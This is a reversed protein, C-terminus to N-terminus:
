FRLIKKFLGGKKYPGIVAFNLKKDKFITRAVGRVEDARISKIRDIIKGPPLLSRTLIEQEGYYGALADSTELGLIFNGILHDKSRQLERPPVLEGGLRHMEHLIAKIVAEIKGHDVGASAALYGHDLYFDPSSGIYYAAGMEERVKKFLRSSMGGGLVDSLVQLAYRRKDFVDFAHVGLVLHTQDSEKFKVVTKPQRQDERTPLRKIRTRRRLGDFCDRIQKLVKQSPFHGAIVVVTSQPTYLKDRYAIFDERRLKRIIEKLGAIPWGAPQDGYLLSIFIENIKRMPTDEHMNIEEIIVGREKEIEGPNFVPNLYLDAVIDLIKPLKYNEAKSWYGTFEQSTFANYQAGLSDLEESIMGPQPRRTTGKFTMHELFHSIGNIKKTEYESGAEVLILVTAALSSPQPVM